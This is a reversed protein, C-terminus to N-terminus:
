NVGTKLHLVKELPVERCEFGYRNLIEAFQRIGERNTRASVGVYFRDDVRMVDGGELTGPATIREIVSSDYFKELVPGTAEIEGKRTPAGPNTIIACRETVVAADEVFCSSRIM